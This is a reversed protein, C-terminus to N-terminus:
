WGGTALWKDIQDFRDVGWFPEGDIVVYPSGFVGNGLAADVEAKTKDKIAQDNLAARVEDAKCGVAAAIKVVNEAESINVDDVFYAKLLAKALEVAKTPDKGNLWYFTRLAAVTSVPFARPYKFPAGHYKASRAFDRKAYDGKLPVQPLPSMGTAKFAAGLLMPRWTVSRGHKAALQEIKTSGIYGYPSSFDFYFDISAAM